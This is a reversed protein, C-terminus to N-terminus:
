RGCRWCVWLANPVKCSEVEPTVFQSGLSIGARIAAKAGCPISEIDRLAFRLTLPGDFCANGTFLSSDWYVCDARGM